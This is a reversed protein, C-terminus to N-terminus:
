GEPVSGVALATLAYVLNEVDRRARDPDRHVLFSLVVGNMGAVALQAIEPVPGDQDSSKTV